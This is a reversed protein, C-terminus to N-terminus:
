ENKLSEESVMSINYRRKVGIEIHVTENIQLLGEKYLTLDYRGSAVAITYKGDSDTVTSKTGIGVTVGSIPNGNEDTVQGAIGSKGAGGIMTIISNFTYQETKAEDNAFVRKGDRCVKTLELYLLNNANVKAQTEVKTSSRSQLFETYTVDFSDKLVTFDQPFATPMFGLTQLDTLNNSMFLEASTAMSMLAAWNEGSSKIYYKAGAADLQAKGTIDTGYADEIFCKLSQWSSMIQLGINALTDRLIQYEANRSQDDPMHYADVISQKLDQVYTPNYKGSFVSFNALDTNLSTVIQKAAEYLHSQSCPYKALM